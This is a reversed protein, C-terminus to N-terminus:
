SLLERWTNKGVIGDATLNKKYQFNLVGDETLSGFIGDAEVGILKQMIKTINGKSGKHLTPLASLTLDGIIGDEVLKNNNKDTFGQKNCEKQLEKIVEYNAYTNIYETNAKSDTFFISENYLYSCDVLGSIFQYDNCSETYQWAVLNNINPKISTGYSAIWWYNNDKFEKSFNDLYYYYGTYIICKLGSLEYFKNIFATAYEEAQESLNSYEIDVVPTIQFDKDKITNYFEVAQGVPSSTVCLMHYAGINIKGKLNNYKSNFTSDKYTIGETAKLIVGELGSGTIASYNNIINHESLDLFKNM